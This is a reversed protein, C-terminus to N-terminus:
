QAVLNLNVVRDSNGSTSPAITMTLLSNDKQYILLGGQDSVTSGFMSSWGLDKLKADYFNQIDKTTTTSPVAFSYNTSSFEQGQTAETMIPIGNWESVPKGQPNFMNAFDPMATELGPFESPIAELTSLPMDTAISQMTSAIDPMSTAFSQATSAVNQVDTIPKTVTNCALVFAIVLVLALVKSLRSM